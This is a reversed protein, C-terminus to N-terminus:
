KVVTGVIGARFTLPVADNNRVQISLQSGLQASDLSLQNNRSVETYMAGPLEVAEVLQSSNGVKIDVISVFFAIDSPICLTEGRIINQPAAPIQATAGAAVVTPAFGLPLRRRSQPATRKLMVANKSAVQRALNKKAASAGGAAGVIEYQEGDAGIVVGVSGLYDDDEGVIELDGSLLESLADDDAGLIEYSM